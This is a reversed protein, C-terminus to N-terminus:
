QPGSLKYFGAGKLVFTGPASLLRVGTCTPSGCPCKPTDEPKALREFTTGCTAGKFDYLPM